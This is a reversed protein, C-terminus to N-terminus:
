NLLRFVKDVHILYLLYTNKCVITEYFCDLKNKSVKKESFILLILFVTFEKNM